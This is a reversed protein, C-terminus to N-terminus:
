DNPYIRRAIASLLTSIVVCLLRWMGYVLALLIAVLILSGM